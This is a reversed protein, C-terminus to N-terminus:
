SKVIRRRKARLPAAALLEQAQALEISAPDTDKPIKANKKGDTIYPGFRGNMIAVSTGEFAKIHKAADAKQKEAILQLARELTITFPDDPKISVYSSGWKVYPGFRGFNAGIEQGDPTKGIIRPLKFMELADELTVEDLRKGQPLPAFKPKVENGDKDTDTAEGLQVMPGYRGLRAIIMKGTAPDKGLDRAGAAEQRSIDEAAEVTKHFPGYFEAIMKNWKQKGDAIEDFEEEVKKTFDYDVIAPFHKVLFDSVLMGVSTPFLKGRDAGYNEFTDQETVNGGILEFRKVPREKGELDGKEVYERDQITSITPAYTSPRGIGMEELRRVLSAETYRPKPRDYVQTADGKVLPLDQGAKLPPLIGEEELDEDSEHALYLKLFGDFLVVEGKAVFQEPRTSITITATTRELRADAMQSAVTRKWILEYLKQEGKDKSVTALDADFHTPRIAEHAEQAGATKTKFEREQYYNAGFQKKIQKAASEIALESLNVSDTRMYTIKGAEYLRQALVMTQRVSFGLKRSAEQQLTSTTFPPAPKRSAPKTEVDAVAFKAPVIDNLFQRAEADTKFRTPLEAVLKDDGATFEATVKFASGATFNEIEREREVILRVAVSQVRGASLGAQIKKWLIPSLEYGVLRDLVRRAQQADVLAQDVHRPNQIARDIATKTIEHFAIRKTTKPDLNLAQCLHWSIAEGERDEDSALWVTAGKALKKLETIRKKKDPSIEYTPVFGHEIDISMGSKPLDRVHGFSAEVAYDKGLFGAITKAKAPSEVIVLNKSM